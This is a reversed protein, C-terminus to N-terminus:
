NSRYHMSKSWWPRMRGLVDANEESMKGLVRPSEVDVIACRIGLLHTVHERNGDDILEQALETSGGVEGLEVQMASIVLDMHMSIVAVLRSEMSVVPAKLEHDHHKTQCISWHHELGKHVLNKAWEKAAKHEQEKIINQYVIHGEHLM